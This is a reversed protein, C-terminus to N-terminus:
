PFRPGEEPVWEEGFQGWHAEWSDDSTYISTEDDLELSLRREDMSARVVTRGILDLMPGPSQRGDQGGGITRRRGGTTITLRGAFHICCHDEPGSGIELEITTASVDCQAIPGRIPLPQGQPAQRAPHSATPAVVLQPPPDLRAENVEARGGRGVVWWTPAEDSPWTVEWGSGRDSSALLTGNDGFDIRLEGAGLVRGSTVGYERMRLLPALDSRRPCAADLKWARGTPLALQLRGLLRITVDFDGGMWLEFSVGRKSVYFYGPSMIPLPLLLGSSTQVPPLGLDELDLPPILRQPSDVWGQDAEGV